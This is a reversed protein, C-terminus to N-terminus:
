ELRDSNPQKPVTNTTPPSRTRNHRTRLYGKLRTLDQVHRGLPPMIDLTHCRGDRDVGPNFHYVSESYETLVLRDYQVTHISGLWVWAALGGEGPYIIPPSM